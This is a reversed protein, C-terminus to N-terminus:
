LLFFNVIYRVVKSICPCFVSIRLEWTRGNNRRWDGIEKAIVVGSAYAFEGTGGVIAWEGDQGLDDGGVVFDGLVKLSSGKFRYNATNGLYSFFAKACLSYIRYSYYDLQFVSLELLIAFRSDTFSISFCM